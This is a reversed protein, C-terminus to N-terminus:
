DDYGKLNKLLKDETLRTSKRRLAFIEGNSLGILLNQFNEQKTLELSTISNKESLISSIHKDIDPYEDDLDLLLNTCKLTLIDYRLLKGIKGGTIMQYGSEDFVASNIYDDTEQINIFEGNISCVIITDKMINRYRTFIVIYGAKTLRIQTINSNELNVLSKLEIQRIFRNNSGLRIVITGDLSASAILDMEKSADLSIVPSQHDCSFWIPTVKQSKVGATNWKVVM